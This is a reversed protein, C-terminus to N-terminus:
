YAGPHEQKPHQGHLIGLFTRLSETGAPVVGPPRATIAELDRPGEFPIIEISTPHEM